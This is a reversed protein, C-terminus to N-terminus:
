PCIMHIDILPITIYEWIPAGGLYLHIDKDQDHLQAVMTRSANGFNYVDCTSAFFQLTVWVALCLNSKTKPRM